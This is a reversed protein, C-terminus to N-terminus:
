ATVEGLDIQAGVGTETPNGALMREGLMRISEKLKGQVSIVVNAAVIPVKLRIINYGAVQQIVDFETSSLVLQFGLAQMTVQIDLILWSQFDIDNIEHKM